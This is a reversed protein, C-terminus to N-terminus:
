EDSDSGERSFVDEHHEANALGSVPLLEELAPGEGGQGEVLVANEANPDTVVEDVEISAHVNRVKDAEPAREPAVQADVEEDVVDVRHFESM